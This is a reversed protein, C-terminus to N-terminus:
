GIEPADPSGDLAINVARSAAEINARCELTRRGKMAM